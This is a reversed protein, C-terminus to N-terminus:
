SKEEADIRYAYEDGVTRYGLRQYLLHANSANAIDTGLSAHTFGRRLAALWLKRLLLEAVGAKRRDARVGIYDTHASRIEDAGAGSTYTSGLVYGVVAGDDDIAALSFDGTFARSALHHEWRQPTKSMNGFHERFTDFQVQRVQETLGAAVVEPWSLITISEIRAEALADPDEDILAKRTSAFQRERRAGHAALADITVAQDAGIFVRLYAGPVAVRGFRGVADGVIARVAEAPAHSGFVFSGLVEPEAGDPRHLAAYGAVTGATDLLVVASGPYVGSLQEAVDRSDAAFKRGGLGPTTALFDAILPHHRPTAETVTWGATVVAADHTLTM